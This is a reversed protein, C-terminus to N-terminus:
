AAMVARLARLARHHRSKVTGVPLDLLVAIQDYTLDLRYYLALIEYAWRGQRLLAAADRRRTAEVQRVREIARRRAVVKLFGLASGRAADYRSAMGAFLQAYVDQTVEEAM